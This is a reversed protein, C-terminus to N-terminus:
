PIACMGSSCISGCCNAGATCSQGIPICAGGGDPGGPNGVISVVWQAIHNHATVDQFPLWFAPTSPDGNGSAAVTLDIAAM